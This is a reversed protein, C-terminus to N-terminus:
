VGALNNLDISPLRIALVMRLVIGGMFLLVGPEVLAVLTSVMDDLEREQDAAAHALAGALDGSTEGSAIMALLMPPFTDHGSLATRLSAGEGVKETAEDIRTRIHRNPTVAAATKLADMLPVGSQLLTALTGAFQSANLQRSFSRTPPRDAVLRHFALRNAPIALWRRLAIIGIGMAALLWLGYATLFESLGIMARTLLPLDAGRETFVRVIDPVVFTLLLVMMLVSVLALLAPYLLALQVKRRTQQRTEVFGALHTLVADLRGSQEGAAVSARYFEPFADPHEDLAAAFSRGDMIAARIDYLISAAKPSKAQSAVTGLAEEIRIDSAILTALQRTVLALTKGPMAPRLSAGLRSFDVGRSAPQETDPKGPRTRTAEVSLPLLKRARLSQRAAADSPAEIVGKAPKGAEDVARYSFAAM